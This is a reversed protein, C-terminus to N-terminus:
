DYKTGTLVAKLADKTASTNLKKGKNAKMAAQCFEPCDTEMFKQFQNLNNLVIDSGDEKMFYQSITEKQSVKNENLVIKM